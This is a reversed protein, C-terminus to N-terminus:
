GTNSWAQVADSLTVASPPAVTRAPAGDFRPAPTPLGGHFTARARNHPHDPAEALSLVPTVCAETDAFAATWDDRDRRAFIQELRAHLAPWGAFDYQPATEPAIELGKLLAAYFRPELAAVAVFGGDQCRYCRYFPAGGDLLNAGRRDNWLGRGHLAQFLGGLLAAGDTMAADVVRGRGTTRAEILGALVGVVLMMAGGGYDGVVNLPPAPPRDAPGMAHLLGSLGIYNLDHGVTQALPGTQGWGTVRGFVLAPNRQHLIEPGYGLREMVGPRFGEIAADAKEVLALIRERDAPAKLDVPVSARGRHLVAGGVEDFVGAGAGASTARSLRLVEAGLDALMMGAFTVPGLGDFELIRLGSLPQM